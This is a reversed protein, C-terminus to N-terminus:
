KLLTHTPTKKILLVIFFPFVKFQQILFIYCFEIIGSSNKMKKGKM